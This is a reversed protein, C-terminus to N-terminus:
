NRKKKFNLLLEKKVHVHHTSQSEIDLKATLSSKPIKDFMLISSKAFIDLPM